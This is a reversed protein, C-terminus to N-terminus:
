MGKVVTATGAETDFEITIYEGWKVFKSCAAEANERRHDSMAEIEYEDLPQKLGENMERLEEDVAEKIADSFVDPDKFTVSFKM